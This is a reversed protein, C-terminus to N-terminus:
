ANPHFSLQLMSLMSCNLNLNAGLIKVAIASTRLEANAMMVQDKEDVM